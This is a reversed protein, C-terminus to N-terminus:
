QSTHHEDLYKDFEILPIKKSVQNVRVEGFELTVPDFFDHEGVDFTLYFCTWEGADVTFSSAESFTTDRLIPPLGSIKTCGNKSNRKARIKQPKIRRYPNGIKLEISSFDVDIKVRGSKSIFGVNVANNHRLPHNKTSIPLMLINFTASVDEGELDVWVNVNDLPIARSEYPVGNLKPISVLSVLTQSCSVLFPICLLFNLRKLMAKMFVLSDHCVFNYNVHYYTM